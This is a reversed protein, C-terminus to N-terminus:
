REAGSTAGNLVAASDAVAVARPLRLSFTTGSDVASAVVLEGHMRRALQRSISLGLGSGQRQQHKEVIQVFPEFVRELQDAAIGRGSDLVDVRVTDGDASGILEVRGGSGTFKLANSLLNVLIQDLRTRDARVVLEPDCQYSYTLGKERVQLSVLPELEALVRAVPVDQINLHLGGAGLTAFDLIDDILKLLYRSNRRIAKLDAAQEATLSGHVGVDLLESYGIIANLPTRLDHSVNAVFQAKARNAAEAETTRMALAVDARRRELYDAAQRALLDMLQLEPEGPRHPQRFHTSIMGLVTGTSSTLPTSQVASVDADRLADLSAQGAFVDSRYVDEIIAREGAQMAIGCASASEAHVRAFFELFAREFGRQAAIELAGSEDLLQINGKDAHTFSIAADLIRELCENFDSGARACYEGVDRLLRMNRLDVGTHGDAGAM